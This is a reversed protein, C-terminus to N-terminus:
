MMEIRIYRRVEPIMKIAAFIVFGCVAVKLASKVPHAPAKIVQKVAKRTALSKM